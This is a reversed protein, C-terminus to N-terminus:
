WSHDVGDLLAAPFRVQSGPLTWFWSSLFLSMLVSTGSCTQENIEVAIADATSTESSLSMSSDDLVLSSEWALMGTAPLFAQMM